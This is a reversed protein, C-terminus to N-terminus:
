NGSVWAVEAVPAGAPSFEVEGDENIDGKIAAGESFRGLLLQESLPDEIRRQIVRRLPRAGLAPEFGEEALKRKVGESLVLTMARSALQLNVRTIELDVVALIEDWTLSHFVVVDDLRNLFEPRFTKKLEELVRNKMTRHQSERERERDRHDSPAASGFGIERHGSIKQAGVNSTMILVCHRFDVRHGHSDTLRGDEMVQLLISFVEPDAKEIEDLLVVSYPKRRVQETLQGGEDYGVYGPPAGMLRSVAFKEMYESMDVRILADESDFLFEALARALLTKGVGTPGLFMFCGIPRRADKMGARSRRVARSITKIAEEQGIIRRHLDEEMRLLKRSEDETLATVPVGTWNSVTEAIDQEEVWVIESEDDARAEMGELEGRLRDEELKLLDAHEYDQEAAADLKDRVINTLREKTEEMQERLSPSLLSRRAASEDLVDIAKDPLFRETIYRHSLLVSANVAADSYQIGHHQEYRTQIGQLIEISEETTPENVTVTQFRRELSPHKEIYKRYDDLTTSGICRIEGRALAPKLINSADMAGEAAGAGVLTHLEDIFIYLEGECSRIEELIKKMREEFEGRYKTGAVIAAMDLAVIRKHRLRRPVEERVIRQALGEVIATKGVGPEGVLVANNKTRRCLIQIVRQIERERGIIPDLKGERAMETLDRGFHDLAPTQSKEPNPRSRQSTSPAPGEEKRCELVALRAQKLDVSFKTLVRYAIGRAVRILGLLLHETGVVQHGLHKAERLSLHLVEKAAPTPRPSSGPRGPEHTLHNEIEQKLKGPTVGLRALVRVASCNSERLLGLLLHETDFFEAGLRGAEDSAHLVARRARDSFREWVQV